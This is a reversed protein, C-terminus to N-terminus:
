GRVDMINQGVRYAAYFIGLAITMSIVGPITSFSAAFDSSMMRLMLVMVVPIGMMATFQTRNSSLATQIEENIEMKESLIENTRSVVDKLNGGVRYCINFVIGFNKIDAIDSREGLSQMMTEIPVNNEVGSIMEAVEKSIYSDDSYQNNLDKYSSMLSETMNMGSSLSVSLADLFSRFQRTLENRRKIILQKERIPMFAKAVIIGVIIFIVINAITTLTTPQGDQNRFQGGYFVLGCAGGALFSLLVNVMKESGRMYYVHYNLMPTNLASPIFEPEKEIKKFLGM